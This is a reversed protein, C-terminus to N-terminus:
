GYCRGNTSAHLSALEHLLVLVNIVRQLGSRLNAM